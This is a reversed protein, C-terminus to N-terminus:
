RIESVQQSLDMRRKQLDELLAQVRLMESEIHRAEATGHTDRQANRIMNTQIKQRLMMMEHELRNNETATEELRQLYNM